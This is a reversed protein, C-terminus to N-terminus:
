STANFTQQQPARPGAGNPLLPEKAMDETEVFEIQLAEQMVACPPCFLWTLIDWLISPGTGNPLGYAARIRQRGMVALILFAVSGVITIGSIAQLTAFLITAQWFGMFRVEASGVSDAWRIPTCFWSCCCIRWDPDCRFGDVLSFTFDDNVVKSPVLRLPPYSYTFMVGYLYAFIMVLIIYLIAGLIVEYWPVKLSIKVPVVDGSDLHPTEQAKGAAMGAVAAVAAPVEAPGAAAAPAVAGPAPPEAEPSPAQM